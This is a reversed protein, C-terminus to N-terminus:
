RIQRAVYCEGFPFAPRYRTAQHLTWLCHTPRTNFGDCIKRVQTARIAWNTVTVNCTRIFAYVNNRLLRTPPPISTNSKKKKKFSLRLCISSTSGKPIRSIEWPILLKLFSFQYKHWYRFTSVYYSCTSGLLLSEMYIAPATVTPYGCSNSRLFWYKFNLM